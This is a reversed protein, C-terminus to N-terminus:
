GNKWQDEVWNYDDLWTGSGYCSKISVEYTSLWILSSGKYIASIKSSIQKKYNLPNDLKDLLRTGDIDYINNDKSPNVNYFVKTILQGNHIIM